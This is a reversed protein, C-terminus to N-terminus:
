LRFYSDMGLLALFHAPFDKNLPSRPMKAQEMSARGSISLWDPERVKPRLNFWAECRPLFEDMLFAQGRKDLDRQRMILKLGDM